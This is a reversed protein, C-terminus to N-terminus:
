HSGSWLLGATHRHNGHRHGKLFLLASFGAVTVEHIIVSESSDFWCGQLCKVGEGWLSESTFVFKISTQPRFRSHLESPKKKFICVGDKEEMTMNLQRTKAGKLMVSLDSKCGFFFFRVLLFFVLYFLNKVHRKKKKQFAMIWYFYWRFCPTGCVHLSKWQKLSGILSYDFWIDWNM